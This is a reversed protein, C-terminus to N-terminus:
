CQTRSWRSHLLDTPGIEWSGPHKEALRLLAQLIQPQDGLLGNLKELKGVREILPVTEDQSNEVTTAMRLLLADHIEQPSQFDFPPNQSPNYVPAKGKVWPVPTDLRVWDEDCPQVQWGEIQDETQHVPVLFDVNTLSVLTRIVHPEGGMDVRYLHTIYVNGIPISILGPHGCSM